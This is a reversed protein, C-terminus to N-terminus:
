INAAMPPWLRRHGTVAGSNRVAFRQGAAGAAFLTGSTAGYLVTNGIIIDGPRHDQSGGFPRIAIRAGSLAKASMTMPM